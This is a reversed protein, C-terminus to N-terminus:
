LFAELVSNLYRWGSDTTKVQSLELSLLKGKILSDIPKRITEFPLGTTQEFDQISFGQRLRLANMLFELPREDLSVNVKEAILGHDNALYHKPQKHKRLRIISNDPLTLKGHAGAGIGIYDGFKWYNLNHKSQCGPKSFASVEYHGYGGAALLREGTLQIDSLVDDDPLRPPKSFFETNPEITLQYWSLHSPSFAIATELDNMADAETQDPLGHMLDVNFNSFGSQVAIEIAAKAQNSDHVRGLVRLHKEAFSQIGISLRNIGAERFGRFKTAEATGPNAELTIELDKELASRKELHDLIRTYANASFSSPTGGGIFISEIKRNAAFQYDHDFDTLLRTVYDHEPIESKAEHSNFDCYPCKRICWPIHIYLGLPPQALM